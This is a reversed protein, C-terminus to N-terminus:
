DSGIYLQQWCVRPTSRRSKILYELIGAALRDEPSAAAMKSFMGTAMKSFMGTAMPFCVVFRDLEMVLLCVSVVGAASNFRFSFQNKSFDQILKFFNILNSFTM